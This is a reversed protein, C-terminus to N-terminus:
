QPGSVIKMVEDVRDRMDMFWLEFDGYEGELFQGQGGMLYLVAGFMGKLRMLIDLAEDRKQNAETNITQIM